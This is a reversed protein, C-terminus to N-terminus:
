SMVNKHDNLFRFERGVIAAGFPYLFTGKFRTIGVLEAMAFSLNASVRQPRSHGRELLTM